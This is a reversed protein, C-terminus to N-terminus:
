LGEGVPKGMQFPLNYNFLFQVCPIMGFTSRNELILGM